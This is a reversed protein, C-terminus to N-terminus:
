VGIWNTQNRKRYSRVTGVTVGYKQALDICVGPRSPAARIERVAEVTLRALPHREGPLSKKRGREIMDNVNDQHTGLELHAPKVCVRNDCRHRVILGDPIPGHVATWAFRHARWKQQHVKVQGYGSTLITGRFEWCDGTRDVKSWFRSLVEPTFKVLPM